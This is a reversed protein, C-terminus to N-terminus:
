CKVWGYVGPEWVNNAATSIWQAGAHMVKDGVQYADHAGAPQKWDTVAPTPAPNLDRSGFVGPEWFNGGAGDGQSVEWDTGAHTVRDPEQTFPNLLLYPNEAPPQSWPAMEGPVRQRVLLAPYTEPPATFITRDFAQICRWLETAGDREYNYVVGIATVNQADLDPCTGWWQAGPAQQDILMNLTEIPSLDGTDMVVVGPANTVADIFPGAGWVHMVGYAATGGSYAPLSFGGNFGQATIYENAASMESVPVIACIGTM